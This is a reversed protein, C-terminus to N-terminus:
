QVDMVCRFGLDHTHTLIYASNRDTIDFRSFPYAWSYGRIVYDNGGTVSRPNQAPSKTYYYRDFQDSTWEWVNGAMNYVGYPSAGEPFSDVPVTDGTGFQNVQMPLEDPLSNGWPLLSGGTGRAAKEWEAETPLRKGAWSCYANAQNWDVHIVPYNDYEENQFYDERTASGTDRPVYCYGSLVCKKFQGNSVEYRDIWYAKLDVEHAPRSSTLASSEDSGMIFTGEPIFVMESGDKGFRDASPATEPEPTIGIYFSGSAFPDFTPAMEQPAPVFACLFAPLFLLILHIVARHTQM